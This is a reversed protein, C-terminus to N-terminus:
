FLMNSFLPVQRQYRGYYQLILYVKKLANMILTQHLKLPFTENFLKSLFITENSAETTTCFIVYVYLNEIKHMNLFCEVKQNLMYECM